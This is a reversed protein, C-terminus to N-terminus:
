PEDSEADKALHVTQTPFAFEIGMENFKELIRLNVREAHEVYAWYDPSSFWYLVRIVLASDAFEQFFVRPPFEDGDVRPHIQQRIESEELIGRIAEIGAKLKEPPTDYTVGVQFDRRISPRRGINEVCHNTIAGNPVTVLHGDPTRLKTSRFGIEEVVGDYGEFIVREGVQFPRDLFITMGGFLNRIVDQAAFSVALGALGFGALLPTVFNLVDIAEAIYIIAWVIIIAKLTKRVLPVLMDDFTTDTDSARRTWLNMLFNTFSWATWTAGAVLVLRGALLFVALASGIIGILKLLLIFVVAGLVLALPRAVRRREAATPSSKMRSWILGILGAFIMTGLWYAMVSLILIVTLMVWQWVEMGLFFGRKTWEPVRERIVDALPTEDERRHSRAGREELWGFLPNIAEITEADFRWGLEPDHALVIRGPLEQHPGTLRSDFQATAGPHSNDPFLEFRELRAEATQESDPAVREPDFKGLRNLVQRLRLAADRRSEGASEPIELTKYVTAWQQDDDSGEAAEIGKLFTILTDLPSALDPDDEPAAEASADADGSPLPTQAALLMPWCLGACAIWVLLTRRECNGWM